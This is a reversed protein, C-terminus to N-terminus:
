VNRVLLPSQELEEVQKVTPYSAPIWANWSACAAPNFVLTPQHSSTSPALWYQVDVVASLASVTM